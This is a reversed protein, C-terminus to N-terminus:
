YCYDSYQKGVVMISVCLKQKIAHGKSGDTAKSPM